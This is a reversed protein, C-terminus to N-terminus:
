YDEVFLLRRVITATVNSDNLDTVTFILEATRGDAQSPAVFIGVFLSDIENVGNGIDTCIVQPVTYPYVATGEDDLFVGERFISVQADPAFGSLRLSIFFHIGGQFGFEVPIVDDDFVCEYPQGFSYGLEVAPATILAAYDRLDIDGDAPNEGDERSDFAALCSESTWEGGPAPTEDPGTLCDVIGSAEALWERCALYGSPQGEAVLSEAAEALAKRPADGLLAVTAAFVLVLGVGSAYARVLQTKRNAM